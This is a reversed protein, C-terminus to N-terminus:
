NKLNFNRNFYNVVSGWLYHLNKIILMIFDLIRLRSNVDRWSSVRNKNELKLELEGWHKREKSEVGKDPQYVMGGVRCPWGQM